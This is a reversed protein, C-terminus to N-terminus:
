SVDALTSELADYAGNPAERRWYVLVDSDIDALQALSPNHGIQHGLTRATELVDLSVDRVASQVDFPDMTQPMDVIPLGAIELSVTGVYRGFLETQRATRRSTAHTAIMDGALQQARVISSGIKAVFDQRNERWGSETAFTPLELRRRMVSAHKGYSYWSSNLTSAAFIHSAFAIDDPQDLRALVGAIVALGRRQQELVLTGTPLLRRREAEDNDRTRAPIYDPANLHQRPLDFNTYPLKNMYM